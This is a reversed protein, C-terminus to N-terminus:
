QRKLKMKRKIERNRRFSRYIFTRNYPVNKNEKILHKVIYNSFIVKLQFIQSQPFHM